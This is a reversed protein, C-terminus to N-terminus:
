RHLEWEGTIIQELTLTLTPVDPTAYYGRAVVVQAANAELICVVEEDGTGGHRLTWRDALSALGEGLVQDRADERRDHSGLVAGFVTMACWRGGRHEVLGCLEEDDPRRVEEVFRLM